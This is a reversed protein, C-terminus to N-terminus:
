LLAFLSDSDVTKVITRTEGTKKNKQKKKIKKKSLDQGEKWKFPFGQIKQVSQDDDKDYTVIVTVIEDEFFPNERFHLTLTVTKVPEYSSKTEVHKLFALAEDDKEKITEQFMQNNKLAKYWFDPIGKVEKLHDLTPPKYTDEEKKEEEEGKEKKETNIKEVEEKVKADNEKFKAVDEAFDTTEGDIILKRKNYLPVRKEEELKLSVQKSELEHKDSAQSRRDSLVKLAKFRDQVNKPMKQIMKIMKQEIQKEEASMEAPAPNKTEETSM